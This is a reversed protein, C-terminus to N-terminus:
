TGFRRRLFDRSARASEAPPRSTTDQEVVIWGDYGGDLLLEMVREVGALGRGLECFVYARLAAFFDLGAARAQALVGADVDKLHVYGVRDAHRAVLDVPDGGGYAYHGVDFCLDVLTPDTSALLREVEDATEVHSGVHNHYHTRVGREAARRAVVHLSGALARWRDDSLGASGDGPVRGALARREPTMACAVVLDSCRVTSFLDLLGDLARLEVELLGADLLHLWRYAGCLALGREELAAGLARPDSPYNSGLETGAFGAAAMEDLVRPFPVEPAWDALDDNNWIVPSAGVRLMM